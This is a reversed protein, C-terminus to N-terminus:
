GGIIEDYLLCQPTSIKFMEGWEHWRNIITDFVPAFAGPAIAFEEAMAEVEALKDPLPKPSHCIWAIQYSLHLLRAVRQTTSQGLEVSDLDEHFGAALAYHAPLGWDLFLETTLESSDIDFAEKERAKLAAGTEQTALIEGYERPFLSALALEGMHSLLGCVFLEESDFEKGLGAITKAAIAQALSSSWYRSYDFGQCRGSKNHSLLSFGLALNVVTKMGLKVAAKQVSAVQIGTALFASNAYSLLEASLSPDTQIVQAIENLSSEESHCLRMVELATRSPTPLKKSANLRDFVEKRETM